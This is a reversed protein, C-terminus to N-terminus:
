VDNALGFTKIRFNLDIIWNFEKLGSCIRKGMQFLKEISEILDILKRAKWLFVGIFITNATATLLVNVSAVYEEFRNPVYCLYLASSVIFFSCLTLIMLSRINIPRKQTTRNSHIGLTGLYKQTSEFMAFLSTHFDFNIVFIEIKKEIVVLSIWQCNLLPFCLECYVCWMVTKINSQSSFCCAKLSFIRRSIALSNFHSDVHGVWFEFNIYSAMPSDRNQSLWFTTEKFGSQSRPM